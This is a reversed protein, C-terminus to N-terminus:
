VKMDPLWFIIFLFIVVLIMMGFYIPISAALQTTADASDEAEGSWAIFYGPQDKLPVIDDYKKPPTGATYNDDPNVTSGLYTEVGVGLAKEIKPRVWISWMAAWYPPFPYVWPRSGM